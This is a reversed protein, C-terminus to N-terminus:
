IDDPMTAPDFIPIDENEAEDEDVIEEVAHRTTEDSANLGDSTEEDGSPDHFATVDSQPRAGVSQETIEEDAVSSNDNHTGPERGQPTQLLAQDTPEVEGENAFQSKSKNLPRQVARDM